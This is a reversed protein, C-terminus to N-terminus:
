EGEKESLIEQKLKEFEAKEEPTLKMELEVVPHPDGVYEENPVFQIKEKISTDNHQECGVLSAATLFSVIVLLFMKM